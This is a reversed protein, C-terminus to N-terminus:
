LAGQSRLWQLYTRLNRELARLADQESNNKNYMWSIRDDQYSIVIVHEKGSKELDMLRRMEDHSIKHAAVDPAGADEAMRGRLGIPDELNSWSVFVYGVHKSADYGDLDVAVGPRQFPTDRSMRIGAAAFLREVVPRVKEESLRAPEGTGYPHWEIPLASQEWSFAHPLGMGVEPPLVPAAPPPVPQPPPAEAVLTATPAPEAPQPAVVTQPSAPPQGVEAVPEPSSQSSPTCGALLASGAVLPTGAWRWSGPADGRLARDLGEAAPYRPEAYRRVRRVELPRRIM